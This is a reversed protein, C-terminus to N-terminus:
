SMFYVLINTLKGLDNSCSREYNTDLDKFQDYKQSKADAVVTIGQGGFNIKTSYGSKNENTDVVSWSARRFDSPKTSSIRVALGNDSTSSTFQGSNFMKSKAFERAPEIQDEGIEEHLNQYGFKTQPVSADIKPSASVSRKKRRYLNAPPPKEDTEVIKIKGPEAAAFHVETKSFEVKKPKKIDAAEGVFLASNDVTIATTADGSEFNNVNIVTTNLHDLDCSNLMPKDHLEDVDKFKIYQADDCAISHRKSLLDTDFNKADKLINKTEDICCSEIKVTSKPRFANEPITNERLSRILKAVKGCKINERGDFADVQRTPLEAQPLTLVTATARTESKKEFKSLLESVGVTKSTSEQFDDTSNINHCLETNAEALKKVIPTSILELESSRCIGSDTSTNAKSATNKLAVINRQGYVPEFGYSKRRDFWDDSKNKNRLELSGTGIIDSKKVYLLDEKDDEKDSNGKSGTCIGDDTDENDTRTIEVKCDDINLHRLKQKTEKLTQETVFSKRKWLPPTTKILHEVTPQKEVAEGKRKLVKELVTELESKSELDVKSDKFKSRPYQFSWRAKSDRKWPDSNEKEDVVSLNEDSISKKKELKRHENSDDAVGNTVARHLSISEVLTSKLEKAIADLRKETEKQADSCIKPLDNFFDDESSTKLSKGRTPPRRIPLFRAVNAKTKETDLNILNHHLQFM